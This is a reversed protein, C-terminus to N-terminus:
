FISALTTANCDNGLLEIIEYNVMDNVLDYIAKLFIAEKEVENFKVKRDVTVQNM